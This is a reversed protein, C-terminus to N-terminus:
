LTFLGFAEVQFPLDFRSGNYTLSDFGLGQCIDQYSHKGGQCTILAKDGGDKLTLHRAPTKHGELTCPAAKLLSSAFGNFLPRPPPIPLCAMKLPTTLAPTQLFGICRNSDPRRRWNNKPPRQHKRLRKGKQTINLQIIGSNEGRDVTMNNIRMWRM